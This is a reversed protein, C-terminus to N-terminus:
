CVNFDHRVKHFTIAPRSFCGGSVRTLIHYVLKEVLHRYQTFVLSGGPPGVKEAKGSGGRLGGLKMKSARVGEHVARAM